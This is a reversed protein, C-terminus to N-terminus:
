RAKDGAIAVAAAEIEPAMGPILALSVALGHSLASTSSRAKGKATRPGVAQSALGTFTAARSDYVYAIRERNGGADLLYDSFVVKWYPGLYRLVTMLDTLDDRVEVISVLDFQGVIEAIYHLSADLRPSKGLERINWTALTISEDLKSSPIKAADIRAKLVDLGRAIDKTIKGHHM